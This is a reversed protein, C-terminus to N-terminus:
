EETLRIPVGNVEVGGEARILIYGAGDIIRTEVLDAREPNVKITVDPTRVEFKKKDVLNQPCVRADAGFEEEFRQAFAERHEEGVGSASLVLELAGKSLVLPEPDKNEKHEEMLNVIQGQVSQIVEMSCDSELTETLLSQFTEKQADAPPPLERRFLADVLEQHSEATNKTYYLTEYLNACRDDFAPFLFGAEPPSVVWDVDRNRFLNEPIHYSLVPKTQKVPCLSCLIYSYVTDSADELTGGDRGRYPVDYSDYALLILYGSGELRFSEAVQQFLAAAAEEDKLESDRLAMLLKHEPSDVVQSTSFSLGILNRGLGGSLTRRLLSLLNEGEEQPMLALSQDFQSVIEGQESVYCGRVHTVSSKEPRFRRRIEAVEKENM